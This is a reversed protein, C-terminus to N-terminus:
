LQGVMSSVHAQETEGVSTMCQHHLVRSGKGAGKSPNLVYDGSNIQIDLPIHTRGKKVMENVSSDDLTYIQM